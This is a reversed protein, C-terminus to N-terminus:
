YRKLPGTSGGKYRNGAADQYIGIGFYKVQVPTLGGGQVQRYQGKFEPTQAGFTRSPPTANRSTSADSGLAGLHDLLCLILFAILLPVVEFAIIITLVVIFKGLM